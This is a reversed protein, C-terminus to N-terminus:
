LGFGVLLGMLESSFTPQFHHLSVKANDGDPKKRCANCIYNWARKGSKTSISCNELTKTIGCKCIPNGKLDSHKLLPEASFNTIRYSIGSPDSVKTKKSSEGFSELKDGVRKVAATM